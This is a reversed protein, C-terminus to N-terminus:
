GINMLNSLLAYIPAMQQTQSNIAQALNTVRRQGFEDRIQRKADEATGVRGAQAAATLAAGIPSSPSWGSGAVQRLGQQQATEAGRAASAEAANLAAQEQAPNAASLVSAFLPNGGGGGAAGGNAGLFNTVFPFATNTVFPFVTNRTFDLAQLAPQNNINAVNQQAQTQLGTGLLDTYNGYNSAELSRDAGYRQAETQLGTGALGTLNGFNSAAAQTQAIARQADTQLGTGALGTLNGFNSADLSRDAGYMSAVSGAQAARLAQDAQYAPLENAFQQTIDGVQLSGGAQGNFGTPPAFPSVFPGSVGAAPAPTNFPAPTPLPTSYMGASTAPQTTQYMSPPPQDQPPTAAAQRPRASTMQKFNNWNFAM